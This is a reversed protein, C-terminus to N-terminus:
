STAGDDAQARPKSFVGFDRSRKSRNGLLTSQTRLGIQILQRIAASRSPMRQEFRWDDIAALEQEDLMLQIRTERSVDDM